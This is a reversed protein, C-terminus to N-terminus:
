SAGSSCFVTPTGGLCSNMADGHRVLPTCDRM